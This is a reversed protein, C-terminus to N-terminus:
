PGSGKEEAYGLRRSELRSAARNREARPHLVGRIGCRKVGRVGLGPIRAAVALRSFNARRRRSAGADEEDCRASPAQKSVGPTGLMVRSDQDFSTAPIGSQRRHWVDFTKRTQFRRPLWKTSAAGVALCNQLAPCSEFRRRQIQKVSIALMSGICWRGLISRRSAPKGGCSCSPLGWPGTPDGPRRVGAAAQANRCGHDEGVGLRM